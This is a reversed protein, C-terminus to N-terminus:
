IDSVDPLHPGCPFLLQSLKQELVGSKKARGDRRSDHLLDISHPIKSRVSAPSRVVQVPPTHRASTNRM